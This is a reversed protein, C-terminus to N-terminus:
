LALSDRFKEILTDAIISHGEDNPHNIGNSYLSAASGTLKENWCKYVDAVPLEHETGIQVIAEMYEDQIKKFDAIGLDTLIQRGEDTGDFYPITSLLMIREIGAARLKAILESYLSKFEPLYETGKLFDNMGYGITVFDPKHSIVSGELTEIGEAVGWGGVGANILNVVATPYTRNIWQMFRDPYGNRMIVQPTERYGATISDGLFVFNIIENDPWEAKLKKELEKYQKM